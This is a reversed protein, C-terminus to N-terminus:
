YAGMTNKKRKNILHHYQVAPKGCVFCKDGYLLKVSKKWEAELEKEKKNM